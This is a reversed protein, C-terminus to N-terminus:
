RDAEGPQAGGKILDRFWSITLKLGHDLDTVPKWGLVERARSIDPCRMTPDDPPRAIFEIDSRSGVAARIRKALELVTIEEPNGLNVPGPTDSKILCVLGDVLDDVYCVSRTQSGDGTVTLSEGRLAQWIFTPIARGDSPRMRPGYCNFIRAIGTNAGLRARYSTTLAEAFRKGEDYMSRPGIPNVNGWYGEPQPHVQPDGYVESTSALVFRARKEHAVELCNLTGASGAKLTEIPLRAYDHPSAPSALHLVVDLPGAVTFPDTVDAKIYSFSGLRSLHDINRPSGTSYNDLCVVDHGDLLLRECLASGIFGAGGAVLARGM